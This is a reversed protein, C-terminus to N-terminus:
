TIILLTLGANGVYILIGDNGTGREHACVIKGGVSSIFSPWPDLDPDFVSIDNSHSTM